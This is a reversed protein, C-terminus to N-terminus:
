GRYKVRSGAPTRTRHVHRVFEDYRADYLEMANQYRKIEGAHLHHMAGLYFLYVEAFHGDAYLETDDTVAGHPAPPDAHRAFVGRELSGELAALWFLKEERSWPNPELGDFRAIAEAATM